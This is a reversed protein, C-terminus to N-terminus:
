HKTLTKSVGRLLPFNQLFHIYHIYIDWSCRKIQSPIFQNLVLHEQSFYLVRSQKQLSSFSLGSVIVIFFDWTFINSNYIYKFISLYGLVVDQM